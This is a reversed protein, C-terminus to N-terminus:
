RMLLRASSFLPYSLVKKKGSEHERDQIRGLGLSAKTELDPGPFEPRKLRSRPSLEGYGWCHGGDRLQVTGTRVAAACGALPSSPPHPRPEDQSETEELRLKGKQFVPLVVKGLLFQINQLLM